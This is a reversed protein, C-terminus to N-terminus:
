FTLVKKSSKRSIPMLRCREDTDACAEGNASLTNVEANVQGPDIVDIRIMRKKTLPVMFGAMYQREHSTGCILIKHSWRDPGLRVALDSSRPLTPTKQSQLEGSSFEPPTASIDIGPENTLV